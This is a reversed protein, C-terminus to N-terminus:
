RAEKTADTQKRIIRVLALLHPSLGRGGNFRVEARLLGVLELVAAPPIAGALDGSAGGLGNTLGDWWATTPRYGGFYESEELDAKAKRALKELFDAVEEMERRQGAVVEITDSM